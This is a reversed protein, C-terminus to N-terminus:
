VTQEGYIILGKIEMPISYCMRVPTDGTHRNIDIMNLIYKVHTQM